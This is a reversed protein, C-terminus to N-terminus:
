KAVEVGKLKHGLRFPPHGIGYQREEQELRDGGVSSCRIRDEWLCQDMKLLCLLVRFIM